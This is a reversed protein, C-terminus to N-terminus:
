PGLKWDRDYANNKTVNFTYLPATPSTFTGFTQNGSYVTATTKGTPWPTVATPTAGDGLTDLKTSVNNGTAFNWIANSVGTCRVIGDDACGQTDFFVFNGDIDTTTTATNGGQTVRIWVNPLAAGTSKNIMRGYLVTVKKGRGVLSESSYSAGGSTTATSQFPKYIIPPNGFGASATTGKLRYDLHVTVWVKANAPVDNVTITGDPGLPCSAQTASVNSSKSLWDRWTNASDGPLQVYAHIPQGGSTQPVFQCPWDIDFKVSSTTGSTNVARQHYYFQGPNTAVIENKPNMLIEFDGITWPQLDDVLRFASDTMTSGSDFHANGFDQLPTSGGPL